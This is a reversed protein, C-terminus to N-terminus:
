MRVKANEGMDPKASTVAAAAMKIYSIVTGPSDWYEASRPTVKLIRISPDDPSDWWAKAPTSWLDRIKERDNQVEAVGSISVYKQKKTDAFALCVNPHQAVEDDKHGKIDTLFYLANEVREIHASMPRAKLEGGSQTTLMCFGIKEALDWVEGDDEIYTM